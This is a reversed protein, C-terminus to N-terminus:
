KITQRRALEADVLRNILRPMTIDASWDLKAKAKTPDGVSVRIDTPRLLEPTTEVYADAKMGLCDFVADVFGTLTSSRGTAVVYDDPENRKLMRAMADVYDPAWGWDRSVDLNGLTLKEARKEVIDVAGRM